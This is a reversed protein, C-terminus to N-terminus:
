GFHPAADGTEGLTDAPDAVDTVALGPTVHHRQTVRDGGPDADTPTLVGHGPAQRRPEGVVAHRRRPRDM